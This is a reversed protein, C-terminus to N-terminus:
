AQPGLLPSITRGRSDANQHGLFNLILTFCSFYFDDPPEGTETGRWHRQGLETEESDPQLTQFYFTQLSKM